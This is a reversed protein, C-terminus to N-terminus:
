RLSSTKVLMYQEKHWTHFVDDGVTYVIRDIHVTSFKGSVEVVKGFYQKRTNSTNVSFSIM